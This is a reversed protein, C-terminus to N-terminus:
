YLRPAFGGTYSVKRSCVGWSTVYDGRSPLGTPSLQPAPTFGGDPGFRALGSTIAQQRALREGEGLDNVNIRIAARSLHQHGVVTLAESVDGEQVVEDGVVTVDPSGMGHQARRALFFRATLSAM